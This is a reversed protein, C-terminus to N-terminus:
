EIRPSRRRVIRRGPVMVAATGPIAVAAVIGACALPPISLMPLGTVGAAFAILTVGAVAAGALTGVGLIIVTELRLAHLLQDRTAGILRLLTLERRRSATAM